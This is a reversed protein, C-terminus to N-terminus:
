FIDFAGCYSLLLAINEGEIRVMARNSVVSSNGKVAMCYYIGDNNPTARPITLTNSNKPNAKSPVKGKVRHWSYRVDDVSASCTLTVNSLAVVTSDVPQVTIETM